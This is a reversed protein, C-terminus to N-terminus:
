IQCIEPASRPNKSLPLSKTRCPCTQPRSSPSPLVGTPDPTFGCCPTQPLLGWFSSCNQLHVARCKLGSLLKSVIKYCNQKETYLLIRKTNWWPKTILVLAYNKAATAAIIKDSSLKTVFALSLSVPKIYVHTLKLAMNGLFLGGVFRANCKHLHV